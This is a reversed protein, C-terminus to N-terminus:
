RGYLRMESSAQERSRRAAPGGSVRVRPRLRRMLKVQRRALLGRARGSVLLEQCEAAERSRRSRAQGGERGAPSREPEEQGQAGVAQGGAEPALVGVHAQDRHVRRRLVGLAALSLPPAGPVLATSLHPRNLRVM